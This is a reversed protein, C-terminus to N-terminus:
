LGQNTGELQGKNKRKIVKTNEKAQCKTVQIKTMLMMAGKQEKVQRGRQTDQTQTWKQIFKVFIEVNKKTLPGM